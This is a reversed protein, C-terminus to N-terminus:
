QSHTHKKRFCLHTSLSHPPTLLVSNIEWYDLSSSFLFTIIPFLRVGKKKKHNSQIQLVACHNGLHVCCFLKELTASVMWDNKVASSAAASCKDTQCKLWLSTYWSSNSLNCYFTICVNIVYLVVIFVKPETIRIQDSRIQDLLM